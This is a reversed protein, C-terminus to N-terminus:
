VGGLFVTAVQAGELADARAELERLVATTYEEVPISEVAYTNFDCYHCRRRCFPFHIYLGAPAPLAM